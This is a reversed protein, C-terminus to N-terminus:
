VQGSATWLSRHGLVDILLIGVTGRLLPVSLETALKPTRKQRLASAYVVFTDRTLLGAHWQDVADLGHIGRAKEHSQYREFADGPLTYANLGVAYYGIGPTCSADLMAQVSSFPALCTLATEALRKRSVSFAARSQDMGIFPRGNLQASVLSTGSGCMFDCFLDGPKTSCLIIRDLLAQPKQTGYGTRQPDKQQMQSLDTWVDDPYSPEDDYYIYTKGGSKISRYSRGDEDVHRKLHNSRSHKSASPVQTIDFFHDKSKAYFLITDHKRSFYKLSRGGTQYSWIIENRFQAAGFIDDCLLRAQAVMRWDIHLFFSGSPTLLQRALHMAERLFAVYDEESSGAFDNFAPLDIYRRGTRWGEEGIRMRLTFREGTFYPPDLYVCQVKEFWPSWDSTLADGLMLTGKTGPFDGREKDCTVRQWMM